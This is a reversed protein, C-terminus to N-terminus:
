GSFNVCPNENFIKHYYFDNELLYKRNAPKGPESPCGPGFPYGPGGPNSPGVPSDPESPKGTHLYKCKRKQDFSLQFIKVIFVFLCVFLFKFSDIIGRDIGIEISFKPYLHVRHNM